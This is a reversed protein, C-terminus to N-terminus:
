IQHLSQLQAFSGSQIKPCIRLFTLGNVVGLKWERLGLKPNVVLTLAQLPTPCSLLRPIM